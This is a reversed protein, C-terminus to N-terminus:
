PTTYTWDLISEIATATSTGGTFGIYASNAGVTAPINV